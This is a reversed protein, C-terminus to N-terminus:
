LFDDDSFPWEPIEKKPQGGLEELREKTHVLESRLSEFHRKLKLKLAKNKTAIRTKEAIAIRKELEGARREQELKETHHLREVRLVEQLEELRENMGDRDAELAEVQRSIRM